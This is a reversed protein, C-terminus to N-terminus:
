KKWSDKCTNYLEWLIEAKIRDEAAKNFKKQMQELHFNSPKDHLKFEFGYAPEPYFKDGKNM